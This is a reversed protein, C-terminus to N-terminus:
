ISEAKCKTSGNVLAVRGNTGDVKILEGDHIAQTAKGTGLVAPIGYERAVIAAHSLSGGTDSVVGGAIAFLPTWEPDTFPCILIDGKQLKSFESKKHIVCARGMAVGGSGSVGRIGGEQEDDSILWTSLQMYCAEVEKRYGKRVAIKNEEVVSFGNECAMLLEEYTLYWLEQVDTIQWIVQLRRLTRRMLAFCKEWLYQSAERKVHSLRYDELDSEVQKRKRGAKELLHAKLKEYSSEELNNESSMRSMQKILGLLREPKENWSTTSFPYCNFESKYGHKALFEEVFQWTDPYKKALVDAGEEIAEMFAEAVKLKSVLAKMDKNIQWTKYDLQGLLDYETAEPMDKMYKKLRKGLLVSPFVYYRFRADALQEQIEKLEMLQMGCEKHSYSSIKEDEIYQLKKECADLVKEGEAKNNAMQKFSKIGGLLKYINKNLKMKSSVLSLKGKEDMKMTSPISLGLEYFLKEKSGGLIMGIEYDLPYFAYPEHELNFALMEREKKSLKPKKGQVTVEACEEKLTTIPRAQLIYAKGERMAWEIDMPKQYHEEIRRGMEYLSYTEEKSIARQQKRTSAVAQKRTEREGYVIEVDKSGIFCSKENGEHDLVYQDPTVLGSVVAEGLGYSANILMEDRKHNLVNATFMVGATEAEIMCQVVVAAKVDKCPIHNEKRYSAARFSFCSAFCDKIRSILAEEGIVNLYTEQQGAFSAEALDEATASSRVAVRVKSGLSRYQALLEDVMEKPMEGSSIRSRVAECARQLAEDESTEEFMEDMLTNLSNYAIFADYAKTTVVFGNPVVINNQVLEGLNAGKGGVLLIDEKGIQEFWVSYM